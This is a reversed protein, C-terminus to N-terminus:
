PRLVELPLRDGFHQNGAVVGFDGFPPALRRFRRGPLPPGVKPQPAALARFLCSLHAAKDYSAAWESHIRYNLPERRPRARLHFMLMISVRSRSSIARTVWPLFIGSKAGPSVTTTFT